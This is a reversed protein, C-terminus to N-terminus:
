LNIVVMREETMERIAYYPGEKGIGSNKVGGYPMADNRYTSVDNIIVGGYELTKAAKLALNLDRTFLGAQLGYKSDNAQAFAEDIDRYPILCVIPAFVEECVVKMEPRTDVLVVPYLISGERRVPLLSKAGGAIAEQVWTEARIAEQESIMPGVDTDPDEPNGVKLQKVYSLYKDTFENFVSEHVFIRQVAICAQGANHFSRSATQKAAWDLDADAHVINPSNNGLELAVSRMGSREKIYRGVKASGTFSYMAVREDDLLWEGVEAGGNIVNVYGKPLGAEEMIEILQMTTLPTTPAPKVVVTNGAAFAPAIKHTGLLLPYNFPTIGVIVGKPVRITFGLRNEGGQIAHLPVMEGSIRKAEEACLRFTEITRDLEGKADKRTKGVERILTYELSTRRKEIIETTKLLIKYREFPTLVDNKFTNLATSVADGVHHKEAKAVSAIMEGTYKHYVPISEKTEVWEGGIYLGYSKISM